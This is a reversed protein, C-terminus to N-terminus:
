RCPPQHGDYEQCVTGNKDKCQKHCLPNARSQNCSKSEWVLCDPDICRADTMTKGEHDYDCCLHSCEYEDKSPIINNLACVVWTFTIKDGIGLTEDKCMEKLAPGVLSVRLDRQDKIAMNRPLVQHFDVQTERMESKAALNDYIDKLEEMVQKNARAYNYFAKFRAGPPRYTADKKGAAATPSNERKHQHLKSM